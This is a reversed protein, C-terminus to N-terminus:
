AEVPERQKQFDIEIHAIQEKFVLVLFFSVFVPIIMMRWM